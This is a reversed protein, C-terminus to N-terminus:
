QATAEHMLRMAEVLKQLRVVTAADSSTLTITVGKDLKKVEVKTSAGGLMMPYMGGSMMGGGMMGGGMINCGMGGGMSAPAGSAVSHEGSPMAGKPAPALTTSKPPQATQAAVLGGGALVTMVVATLLNRKM